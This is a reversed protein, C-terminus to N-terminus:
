RLQKDRSGLNEAWDAMLLRHDDFRDIDRPRTGLLQQGHDLRPAPLNDPFPAHRNAERSPHTTRIEADTM